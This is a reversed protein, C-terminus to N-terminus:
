HPLAYFIGRIVFFGAAVFLATGVLMATIYAAALNEKGPRPKTIGVGWIFAQSVLDTVSKM